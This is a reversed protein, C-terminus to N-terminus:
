DRGQTPRGTRSDSRLGVLNQPYCKQHKNSPGIYRHSFSFWSVWHRCDTYINTPIINMMVQFGFVHMCAHICYTHQSVLKVAKASFSDLESKLREETKTIQGEELICRKPFQESSLFDAQQIKTFIFGFCHMFLHSRNWNKLWVHIEILQCPFKFFIRGRM